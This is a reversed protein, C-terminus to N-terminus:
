LVLKQKKVFCMLVKVHIISAAFKVRCVGGSFFNTDFMTSRVDDECRVDLMTGRVYRECILRKHFVGLM